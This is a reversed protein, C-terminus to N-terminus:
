CSLINGFYDNKNLMMGAVAWRRNLLINHTETQIYEKKFNYPQTLKHPEDGTFCVMDGKKPKYKLGSEFHLEGGDYNDNLYQVYSWLPNHTHYKNDNYTKGYSEDVYQLYCKAYLETPFTKKIDFTYLIDQIEIVTLNINFKKLTNISKDENNYWYELLKIISTDDITNEFVCIM